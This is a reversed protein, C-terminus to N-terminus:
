GLKMVGFIELRCGRPSSFGPMVTYRGENPFTARLTLGLHHDQLTEPTVLPACNVKDDPRWSGDAIRM